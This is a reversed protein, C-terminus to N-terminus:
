RARRRGLGAVGLLGALMLAVTSPEPVAAADTAQNGQGNGNGTGVTPSNDVIVDPLPDIKDNLGTGEGVGLNANGTGTGAGTNAGADVGTSVSPTSPASVSPTSLGSSPASAGASTSQNAGGGSVPTTAIIKFGDATSIVQMGDGALAVAKATSLGTVYVGDIGQKLSVKM